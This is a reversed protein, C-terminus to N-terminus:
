RGDDTGKTRRNVRWWKCTHPGKRVRGDPFTALDCDKPTGLMLVCEDPEEGHVEDVHCAYKPWPKLESAM